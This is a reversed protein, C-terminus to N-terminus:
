QSRGRRMEWSSRTQDLQSEKLDLISQFRRLVDDTIEGKDRLEILKARQQKVIALELSVVSGFFQTQSRDAPEAGPTERDRGYIDYLHAIARGKAEDPEELSKLYGVATTAMALRAKIEDRETGPQLKFQLRSLLKPLTLGQGLLTVLIVAFTFIIVEARQPFPSGDGLMPPIALAAALSIGGRIGVWSLLIAQSKALSRDSSQSHGSLPLPWGTAGVQGGYNQSSPRLRFRLPPPNTSVFVWVIRAFIVTASIAIGGGILLWPNESWLPEGVPRLQLGILIFLLGNLLFTLMEWSGAAQLRARPTSTRPDNWGLYLGATVVALVGSVHFAAAPQYAAFAALLSITNALLPDTTHRRLQVALWGVLGGIIVGGAVALCFHSIITGWVYTKQQTTHIAAEFLVLATADNVLSEGRLIASLRRPIPFRELIAGVAVTDTPGLVAGLVFAPGWAMGLLVHAVLLVSFTTALVLGVSLLFIPRWNERFDRWSSNLADSFILPPLFLLFVIDPELDIAPLRPPIALLLGGLVLVIPYSINLRIALAVLAVMVVLLAVVLQVSHM